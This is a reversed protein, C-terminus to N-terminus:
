TWDKGAEPLWRDIIRNKLSYKLCRVCIFGHTMPSKQHCTYKLLQQWRLEDVNHFNTPSGERQLKIINWKILLTSSLILLLLNIILSKRNFCRYSEWRNWNYVYLCQTVQICIKPEISRQPSIDPSFYTIIWQCRLFYIGKKCM